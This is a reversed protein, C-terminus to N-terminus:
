VVRTGTGPHHYGLNFPVTSGGPLSSHLIVVGDDKPNGAYQYPLTAYGLLGEGSGTVFGTSYVNLVNKGGRHLMNKAATNISNEPGLSNFWATNTTYDTRELKFTIHAPSFARNLVRIQKAIETATLSGGTYTGDKRIVHWYVPVEIPPNFYSRGITLNSNEFGNKELLRSFDDEAKAVEESLPTTGCGRGHKPAAFVSTAALLLTFAFALM